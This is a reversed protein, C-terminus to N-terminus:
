KQSVKQSGKQFLAAYQGYGEAELKDAPIFRLAASNMCYRLGTPAPGDDFVHGLHSDAHKSRVETREAFLKSDTKTEINASELPRTFSPWGTGSDYKDLSSFLPEGSVVDVYIGPEHNDWYANSFPRETGEHQTVQYQEPSLKQKLESESPKEFTMPSWGKPKTSLRPDPTLHEVDTTPYRGAGSEQSKVGSVKTDGWLEKMREERGCGIVYARYREPNKKYFQQHYEEAPYFKTARQIETVVPTSFRHSRDLAQKSAEASRQQASDRYFIISRYQPGTDCFARNVTTPDIHHWYIDLLGDYSIRAPEYIVQVSEAYGTKGTEVAEYDPNPQTGGAYGATVEVVGPVGDFAKQMSWFCGGAFIAIKQAGTPVPLAAFQAHRTPAAGPLKLGLLTLGLLSLAILGVFRAPSRTM